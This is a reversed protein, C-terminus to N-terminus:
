KKKQKRITPALQKTQKALNEVQKAFEADAKADELTRRKIEFKAFESDAKLRAEEASIKGANKLIPQGGASLFADLKSIWDRMSMPRRDLAQLEAFDLYQSVILGLRKLEEQNL